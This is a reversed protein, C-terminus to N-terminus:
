YLCIKLKYFLTTMLVNNKKHNECLLARLYLTKHSVNQRNKQTTEIKKESLNKVIDLEM